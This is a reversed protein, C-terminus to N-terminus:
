GRQSRLRVMWRVLLGASVLPPVLLLFVVLLDFLTFRYKFSVSAIPRLNLRVGLPAAAGHLADFNPFTLSKGTKTDILFYSDVEGAGNQVHSFWRSDAGGAIYRDSVQLVRVGDFAEERDAVSDTSKQRKPHYVCGQETVDTMLVAYGNPLPCKWTDGLGPDRQRYGENVAWQLVFVTAAWALCAVPRSVAAIVVKGRGQRVGRSFYAAAAGAMLAGLGALIMGAAGWFLLVFIIGM